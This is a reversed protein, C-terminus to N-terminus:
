DRQVTQMGKDTLSWVEGSAGIACSGVMPCTACGGECGESMPRLYGMRALDHVMQTLLPESVDMERALSAVSHIGGQAVRKLLRDLM